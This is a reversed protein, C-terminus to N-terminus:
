EKCGYALDGADGLGPVIYSKSTLEEDVAGVWLTMNKFSLHKKLYDIGESSAILAVIHTHAPEGKELLSKYTLLMSAGTALMADSVILVKNDIPPASLAQFKIDFTGDKHYKRFASVFGAEAKDFYNLLGQQIPMGARLITALVISDTILPVTALGLPTQVEKEVFTLTQSIEYAMIEGMRELNRRFRMSDKQIDANRIEAIFHNFLSNKNGIIHIM